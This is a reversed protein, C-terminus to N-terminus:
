GEQNNEQIENSDEKIIRSSEQRGIKHLQRRGKKRHKSKMKWHKSPPGYVKEELETRRQRGYAKMTSIDLLFRIELISFM